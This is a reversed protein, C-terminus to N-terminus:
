GKAIGDMSKLLNSNAMITRFYAVLFEVNVRGVNDPQLRLLQKYLVTITGDCKILLEIFSDHTQMSITSSNLSEELQTAQQNLEELASALSTLPSVGHQRPDLAEVLVRVENACSITRQSITSCLTTLATVSRGDM